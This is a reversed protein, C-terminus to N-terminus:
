ANAQVARAAKAHYASVIVDVATDLNLVGTNIV